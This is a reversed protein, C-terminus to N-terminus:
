VKELKALFNSASKHFQNKWATNHESMSYEFEDEDLVNEITDAIDNLISRIHADRSADQEARTGEFSSKIPFSAVKNLKLHETM